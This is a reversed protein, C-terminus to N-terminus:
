SLTRVVRQPSPLREVGAWRPNILRYADDVLCFLETIAEELSALPPTDKPRAM